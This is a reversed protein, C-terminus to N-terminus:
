GSGGIMRVQELLTCTDDTPCEHFGENDSLDYTMVNVGGANAGQTIFQTIFPYWQYLLLTCPLNPLVVAVLVTLVVVFEPSTTLPPLLRSLTRAAVRRPDKGHSALCKVARDGGPYRLVVCGEPERGVLQQEVRRGCGCRDVVEPSSMAASLSSHVPLDCYWAVVNLMARSSRRM